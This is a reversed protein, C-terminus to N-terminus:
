MAVVGFLGLFGFIIMVLGLVLYFIRARSRGGLIKSIFKVKGNEMFWNWDFAAGSISFLGALVLIVGKYDM